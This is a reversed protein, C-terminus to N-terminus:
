APAVQVEATQQAGASTTVTVACGEGVTFAQGMITVVVGVSGGPPVPYGVSVSGPNGATAPCTSTLEAGTATNYTTYCYPALVPAQSTSLVFSSMATQGSNYVTLSEIAIYAGQRLSTDEINVSPGQLASSYPLVASLVAASGGAAIGILVFVEIYTSAGSRRRLSL